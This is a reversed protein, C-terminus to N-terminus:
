KQSARPPTRRFLDMILLLIIPISVAGTLFEPLTKPEMLDHFELWDIAVLVLIVVVIVLRKM